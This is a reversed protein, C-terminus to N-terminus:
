SNVNEESNNEEGEENVDSDEGDTEDPLVEEGIETNAIAERTRRSQNVLALALLFGVAIVIVISAVIVFTEM